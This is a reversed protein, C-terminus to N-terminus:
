NSFLRFAGFARKTKEETKEEFKTIWAYSSNVIDNEKNASTITVDFQITFNMNYKVSDFTMLVLKGNIKIKSRKNFNEPVRPLGLDFKEAYYSGSAIPVKDAENEIAEKPENGFVNLSIPYFLFIPAKGVNKFQLIEPEHLFELLISPVMDMKVLTKQIKFQKSLLWFQMVTLVFMLFAILITIYDFYDSTEKQGILLDLVQSLKEEM